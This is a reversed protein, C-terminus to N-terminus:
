AAKLIKSVAAVDAAPVYYRAHLNKGAIDRVVKSRQSLEVEGDAGAVIVPDKLDYPAAGLRDEIFFVDSSGKQRKEFHERVKQRLKVPMDQDITLAEWVLKLNQRRLFRSALSALLPDAANQWRKLAVYVDSDDHELFDAVPVAAGKDLFSALAPTVSERPLKGERWLTRARGVAAKMLLEMARSTKHYYVKWYMFYRALFYEEVALLGREKVMLRGKRVTFSAIIRGLDVQGSNVGTSHADRVLYDLRDVDLQSSLLTHILSLEKGPAKGEMLAALTKGRSGLIKKLEPDERMLRAGLAEHNHGLTSELTHSYACHGIDHLLAGALALERGAKSFRLGEEQELHQLVRDMLTMAGLSHAFRSHEAGLFTLYSVGLQRIQRLRQVARSDILALLLPSAVAIQGYLPDQFYKVKPRPM